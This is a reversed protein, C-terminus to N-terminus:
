EFVIIEFENSQLDTILYEDPQLQQPYNATVFNQANNQCEAKLKDVDPNGYKRIAIKNLDLRWVEPRFSGILESIVGQKFTNADPDTLNGKNRQDEILGLLQSRYDKLARNGYDTKQVLRSAELYVEAPNSSDVNDVPNFSISFWARRRNPDFIQGCITSLLWIQISYGFDQPTLPPPGGQYNLLM